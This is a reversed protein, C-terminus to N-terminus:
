FSARAGVTLKTADSGVEAEGVLGWIRHFRWQLGTTATFESDFDGGYYNGKILGELRDSFASRFGVSTRVGSADGDFTGFGTDVSVDQNVYGLEAILDANASLAHRYGVGLHTQDMDVDAGGFWGDDSGTEYGGFLYFSDAIAVSGRIYEGTITADDVGNDVEVEARGVGGEVYTYSLEGASAALPSLALLSALLVAKKM